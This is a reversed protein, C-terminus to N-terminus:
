RDAAKRYNSWTDDEYTRHSFLGVIRSYSQVRFHSPLWIETSVPAKELEFFTGPKVTALFGEMHVPTIVRALVKVWQFSQTDIWLQGQMGTLVHSEMNPPRYGARPVARLHYVSRGSLKERGTVHFTFADTLQLMLIHDSARDKEYAGIRHARESANESRRRATEEDLKSQEQQQARPSLAAGDVRVLRRYPSGFLMIVQYAKSGNGDKVTEISSWAPAAQWDRENAEVSRRIIEAAAPPEIVALAGPTLLIGAAIIRLVAIGGTM